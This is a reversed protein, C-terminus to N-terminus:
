GGMLSDEDSRKNTREDDEGDKKMSAVIMPPTDTVTTPVEECNTSRTTEIYSTSWHHNSM